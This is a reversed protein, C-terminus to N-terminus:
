PTERIVRQASSLSYCIYPRIHGLVLSFFADLSMPLLKQFHFVRLNEGLFVDNRMGDLGVQCWRQTHYGPAFQVNDNCISVRNTRSVGIIDSTASLAM